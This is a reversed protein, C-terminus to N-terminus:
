RPLTGATRVVARRRSIRRKLGTATAELRPGKLDHEWFRWVAWGGTRLERAHRRDRAQNRAVKAAWYESRTRPVRYHRPCGHFFCGDVFICLGLSPVVVDPKGPLYSANRDIRWRHGLADRVALLM